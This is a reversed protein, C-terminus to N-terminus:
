RVWAQNQAWKALHNKPPSYVHRSCGLQELANGIGSCFVDVVIPDLNKKLANRATKHPACCQESIASNPRAFSLNRLRNKISLCPTGECSVNEVKSRM